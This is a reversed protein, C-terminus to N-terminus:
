RPVGSGASRAIRRGPQIFLLIGGLCLLSLPLSASSWGYLAAWQSVVPPGILSGMNGLQAVLGSLLMVHRTDEVLLPFSAFVLSPVLASFAIILVAALTGTVPADLNLFFLISAAASAAFGLTVFRIFHAPNPPFISLLVTTAVDALCIFSTAIV